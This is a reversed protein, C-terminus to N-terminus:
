SVALHAIARLLLSGLAAMILVNRDYHSLEAHIGFAVAKNKVLYKRYIFLACQHGESSWAGSSLSCMGYLTSAPSKRLLCVSLPYEHISRLSPCTVSTARHRGLYICVTKTPTCFSSRSTGVGFNELDLINSVYRIREELIVSQVLATRHGSDM